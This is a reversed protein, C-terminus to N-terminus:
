LQGSLVAAEAAASGELAEALPYAFSIGRPRQAQEAFQARIAKKLEDGSLGRGTAASVTEMLWVCYREM